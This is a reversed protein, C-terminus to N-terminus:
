AYLGMESPFQFDRCFSNFAQNELKRQNCVMFSRIIVWKWHADWGPIGGNFFSKPKLYEEKIFVRGLLRGERSLM